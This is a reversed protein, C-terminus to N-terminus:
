PAEGNWWAKFHPADGVIEMNLVQDGRMVSAWLRHHGAHITLVGLRWKITQLSVTIPEGGWGHKMLYAIRAAHWDREDIAAQFVPQSFLLPMAQLQNEKVSQLIVNSNVPLKGWAPTSCSLHCDFRDVVEIMPASFVESNKHRVVAMSPMHPTNVLILQLQAHEFGTTISVGRIASM